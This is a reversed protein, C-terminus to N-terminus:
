GKLSDLWDAWHQMMKRREPLYEAYNYAARVSNGEVHALQREIVDPHWGQENLNTSAMSRFGHATMQAKTYGLRRLAAVITNESMPREGHLLTRNSPFIYKGEGTLPRLTELLELVQRALPVIHPKKGKMKIDPINWEASEIDFETWEAHRANGPRVFTYASFWLALAVIRSGDFAELSKLLGAIDKPNTLSAHHKHANPPLAGRLDMSLDHECEGIAIGYRFVQGAIQKVRHATEITGAAQLQRLIALLEPTTISRIEREGFAPFLFRELRYKVTVAHGETRAAKIHADFWELAVEKFTVPKKALPELETQIGDTNKKLLFEDRKNRADKLGVYPYEGFSLKKEKGEVKYRLKWFKHGNPHIELYLGRDDRVMYRTAKPELRKIGLETLAM